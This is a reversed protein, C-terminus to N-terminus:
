FTGYGPSAAATEEMLAKHFAHAGALKCLEYFEPFNALKKALAVAKKAAEKPTDKTPEPAKVTESSKTAAASTSKAAARAGAKAKAEKVRAVIEKTKPSTGAKVEAAIENVIEPPTGKSGLAYLSKDPLAALMENKAVASAANMWNQATKESFRFEAALWRLFEGHGLKAKVANLEKGIKFAGAKMSDFLKHIRATADITDKDYAVPTHPLPTTEALANVTNGSLDFNRLEENAMQLEAM